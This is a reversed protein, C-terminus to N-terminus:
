TRTVHHYAKVIDATNTNSRCARPARRKITPFQGYLTRYGRSLPRKTSCTAPAKCAAKPSCRRSRAWRAIWHAGNVKRLEGMKEVQDIWDRLGRYSVTSHSAGVREPRAM